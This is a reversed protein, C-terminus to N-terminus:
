RSPMRRKAPSSATASHSASSSAIPGSPSAATAMGKAPMRASAPTASVMAFDDSGEDLREAAPGLAGLAELVGLPEALVEGREHVFVDLVLPQPVHEIEFTEDDRPELRVRRRRRDHREGKRFPM